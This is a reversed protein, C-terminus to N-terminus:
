TCCEKFRQQNIQRLPLILNDNSPMDIQLRRRLARKRPPIQIAACLRRSFRLLMTRFAIPPMDALAAIRFPVLLADFGDVHRHRPSFLYV